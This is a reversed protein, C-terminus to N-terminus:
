KVYTQYVIHMNACGSIYCEFLPDKVFALYIKFTIVSNLICEVSMDRSLM